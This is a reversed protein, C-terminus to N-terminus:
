FGTKGSTLGPVLKIREFLVVVVKVKWKSKDFRSKMNKSRPGFEQRRYNGLRVELDFEPRFGYLLVGPVIGTTANQTSNIGRQVKILHKDWGEHDESINATLAELVTRNLCKVHRNSRPPALANKLIQM